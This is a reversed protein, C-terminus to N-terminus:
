LMVHYLARLQTHTLLLSLTHPNKSVDGCMHINMHMVSGLRHGIM